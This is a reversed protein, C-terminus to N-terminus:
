FGHGLRCPNRDRGGALHDGTQYSPQVRCGPRESGSVLRALWSASSELFGTLLELPLIIVVAIVNFFDHMTAAAFARRFGETNRLNALAVLTNTVTTGINAGMIMPIAAEVPITGEAVLVVITATTVSSSQVLVTALIGVFLAAVPNSVNEFLSDTFGKGLGKIGSELLKIGALFLYLLAVVLVSRVPTPLRPQSTPDPPHTM